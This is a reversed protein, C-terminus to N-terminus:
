LLVLCLGSAAYLAIGDWLYDPLRAFYFPGALVFLLTLGLLVGPRDPYAISPRKFRTFPGKGGRASPSSGRASEAPAVELRGPDPCGAQSLKSGDDMRCRGVRPM